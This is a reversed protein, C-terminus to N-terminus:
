RDGDQLAYKSGDWAFTYSYMPISREFPDLLVPVQVVIRGGPTAYATAPRPAESCFGRGPDTGTEVLSRSRSPAPNSVTGSSWIEKFDTAAHALVHVRVCPGYREVLLIHQNQKLSDADVNAISSSSIDDMGAAKRMDHIETAALGSKHAWLQDERDHREKLMRESSASTANTQAFALGVWALIAIGEVIRFM